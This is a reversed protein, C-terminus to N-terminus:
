DESFEDEVTSFDVDVSAAPNHAPAAGTIQGSVPQNPAVQSGLPPLSGQVPKPAPGFAPAQGSEVLAKLYEDFPRAVSKLIINVLADIDYQAIQQRVAQMITADQPRNSAKPKVYSFNGKAVKSLAITEFKAMECTDSAFENYIDDSLRLYEIRISSDILNGRADTHLRAVPCVYYNRATLGYKLVKETDVYYAGRKPTEVFAISVAFWDQTLPICRGKTGDAVDSRNISITPITEGLRVQTIGPILQYKAM